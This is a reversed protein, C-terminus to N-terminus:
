CVLTLGGSNCLILAQDGVVFMHFGRRRVETELQEMSAFLNVWGINRRVLGGNRAQRSQFIRQIYSNYL